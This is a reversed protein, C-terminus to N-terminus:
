RRALEAFTLVALTRARESLLDRADRVLRQPTGCWKAVLIVTDSLRPFLRAEALALLPPTDLIVVDFRERLEKIVQTAASSSAFIKYDVGDESSYDIISASTQSDPRLADEIRARGNALQVLGPKTPGPISETLQRRRGDCDVMVVSAGTLAASRALCISVTTKGENAVASCVAVVISRGPEVAIQRRLVDFAHSFASSPNNIPEDIPPWRGEAGVGGGDLRPVLSSLPLGLALETDKASRLTSRRAEQVLVWLGAMCLGACIGLVTFLLWERDPRNAAQVPAFRVQVTDIVASDNPTTVSATIRQPPPARAPEAVASQATRLETLKRQTELLASSLTLKEQAASQAAIAVQDKSDDFERQAAVLEQEASIMTPHQPGYRQAFENRRDTAAKWQTWSPGLTPDETLIEPMSKPDNFTALSRQSQRLARDTTQLDQILIHSRQEFIIQQLALDVTSNPVLTRDQALKRSPQRTSGMPPSPQADGTRRYLDSLRSTLDALVGVAMVRDRNRYTIEVNSTTSRGPAIRLTERVAREADAAEASSLYPAEAPVTRLTAYLQRGFRAVTQALVPSSAVDAGLRGLM